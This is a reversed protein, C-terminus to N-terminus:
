HQKSNGILTNSRLFELNCNRSFRFEETSTNIIIMDAAFDLKPLALMGQLAARRARAVDLDAAVVIKAEGPM